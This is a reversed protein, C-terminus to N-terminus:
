RRSRRKKKHMSFGLLSGGALLFLGVGGGILWWKNASLWLETPRYEPGYAAGAGSTPRELYTYPTGTDLLEPRYEPGYTPGSIWAPMPPAAGSGFMM